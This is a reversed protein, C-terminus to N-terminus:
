LRRQKKPVSTNQDFGSVVHGKSAPLKECNRGGMALNAIRMSTSHNDGQICQEANPQSTGGGTFQRLQAFHHELIDQQVRRCILIADSKGANAKLGRSLYCVSLGVLGFVLSQLDEWCPTPLFSLAQQKEDLGSAALGQQWEAFWLLIDLLEYIHPDSASKIAHCHKEEKSNCIDVLRDVKKCLEQLGDFFSCNDKPCLSEKATEIMSAMTSSLVQTALYVRMRLFANKKFHEETLKRNVQLACEGSLQQKKCAPHKGECMLWVDRLMDITIPQFKGMRPDWVQLQRDSSSLASFEVANMIKKVGHPMEGVLFIPDRSGLCPHEMAIPFSFNLLSYKHYLETWEGDEAM